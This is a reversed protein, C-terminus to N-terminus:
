VFKEMWNVIEKLREMRLSPKGTRSLNHDSEPFRVFEAEKGMRKLTIYLQEAQEIPCRLDNEGHIILLPTDIQEAYKLPSLNWLKEVDRVGVKHQWESFYYGIDSVGYFSVWNSISRQTVAAKFRNTKGIIWNTLFGGYSGGTVGLREADIWDNEALVYDLGAMIDAYDGGGYDGRVADVFAQSYGHSGRPNVYLVGFGKAALVQMEHFFTNAYMAAPGGHIEVILPYKKGEEFGAPKMLWGHIDWDNAGKYVIAEPMVLEVEEVFTENVSTLAKREGTTITLQYLDGPHVADSKAVLAFLGSKAVDYDYIHEQEPSAPFIMGDLSAYYLRVDGMTSLQFYLDNDKTWVVPSASIGQQADAVALDGVPADIGETLCTTLATDCEYVFLKPQTANEYTRDAGVYALYVDNPSFVASGYRGDADTIVTEEKSAVDVLILPTKFSDDQNEVRNVRMVLKDGQHSVALLDYDFDGETFPTMEGTTLDLLGIHHHTQQPLLGLGEAKYKMTTVRYATPESLEETEKEFMDGKRVPGNVWIKEGCPAWQFRVVGKPFSTVVRAEGGRAPMVYLQKKGDRNSLFAIHKGDASWAPASIREKGHTWQTCAGSELDIHHLTSVYDNEVEDIVTKLFIAERENPSIKPSAVSGFKSLDDIRMKGKAM